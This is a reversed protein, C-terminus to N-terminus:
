NWLGMGIVCIHFLICTSNLLSVIESIILIQQQFGDIWLQMPSMNHSLTMKHENWANVWEEIHHNIVNKYVNHLCFGDNENLRNLMGIDEPPPIPLLIHMNDM